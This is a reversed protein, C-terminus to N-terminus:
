LAVHTCMPLIDTTDCQITSVVNTGRQPKKELVRGLEAEELVYFGRVAGEKNGRDRFKKMALLANLHLVKGPLLLSYAANGQAQGDARFSSDGKGAYYLLTNDPATEFTNNYM